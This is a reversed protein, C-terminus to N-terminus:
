EPCKERFFGWFVFGVFINNKLQSESVQGLLDEVSAATEPRLTLRLKKYWSRSQSTSTCACERFRHSYM